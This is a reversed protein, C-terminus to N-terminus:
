TNTRKRCFDLGDMGYQRLLTDLSGRAIGLQYATDKKNYVSALRTIAEKPGMGCNNRIKEVTSIGGGSIFRKKCHICFAAAVHIPTRCVPCKRRGKM